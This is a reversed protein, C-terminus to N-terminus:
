KFLNNVLLLTFLWIIWFVALELNIRINRFSLKFLTFFILTLFIILGALPLSVLFIVFSEPIFGMYYQDSPLPSESMFLCVGSVFTVIPMLIFWVWSIQFLKKPKSELLAERPVIPQNNLQQEDM